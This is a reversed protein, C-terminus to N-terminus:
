AKFKKLLSIMREKDEINEILTESWSCGHDQLGIMFKLGYWIRKYWPLYHSMQVHFSIWEWLEQEPWKEKQEDSLSEKYYKVAMLHNNSYCECEFYETIEIDKDTM